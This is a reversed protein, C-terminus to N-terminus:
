LEKVKNVYQLSDRLDPLLSNRIWSTVMDRGNSSPFILLPRSLLKEPSLVLIVKLLYNM